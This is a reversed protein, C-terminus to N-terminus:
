SLDEVVVVPKNLRIAQEIAEHEFFSERPRAYYCANHMGMWKQVGDWSDAYSPWNEVPGYMDELVQIIGVVRIGWNNGMLGPDFLSRCNGCLMWDEDTWHQRSRDANGCIPCAHDPMTPFEIGMDALHERAAEIVDKIDSTRDEIHVLVGRDKHTLDYVGPERETLWVQGDDITVRNARGREGGFPDGLEKLADEVAIHGQVEVCKVCGKDDVPQWGHTPCEVETIFGGALLDEFEEMSCDMTWGNTLRAKM